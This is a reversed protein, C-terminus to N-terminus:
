ESVSRDNSAVPCSSSVTDKFLMFLYFNRNAKPINLTLILM